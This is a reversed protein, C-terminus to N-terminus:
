RAHPNEERPTPVNKPLLSSVVKRESFFPVPSILSKGGDGTLMLSRRRRKNRVPKSTEQADTAEEQGRLKEDPESAPTTSETARFGHLAKSLGAAFREISVGYRKAFLEAKALFTWQLLADEDLEFVKECARYFAVSGHGTWEVGAVYDRSFATLEGLKHQSLGRERRLTAILTGPKVMGNGGHKTRNSVNTAPKRETTEEYAGGMSPNCNPRVCNRGCLHLIRSAPSQKGAVLGALGYTAVALSAHASTLCKAALCFAEPCHIM